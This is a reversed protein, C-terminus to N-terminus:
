RPRKGVNRLIQENFFWYFFGAIVLWGVKGIKPQRPSVDAPDLVLKDAENEPFKAFYTSGDPRRFEILDEM